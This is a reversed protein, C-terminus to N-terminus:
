EASHAELLLPEPIVALSCPSCCPIWSPFGQCPRKWTPRSQPLLFHSLDHPSVQMTYHTYSIITSTIQLDRNPIGHLLFEHWEHDEGIFMSIRLPPLPREKRLYSWYAYYIRIGETPDTTNSKTHIETLSSHKYPNRGAQWIMKESWAASHRGYIQAQSAHNGKRRPWHFLFPATQSTSALIIM